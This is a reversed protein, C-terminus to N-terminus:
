GTYGTADVIIHTTALTYICITGTPSLQTTVANAITQGPTYNITSATPIDDTCPYVTAFGPADPQTITLNLIATTANTPINNRGTIQIETPTDAPIIGTGAHQTDITTHDPRTDLLRGPAVTHLTSDDTTYGTADIIIHTTALTYICITGTPSLQTTVANAITQGPTYNITSATPIDDTCPYVTAFGPADPQTITLNLIATTANTPINNRGTIQIETPTDAPIIGTGAHQTDITTHDPRTDLLRGPEVTTVADIREICSIQGTLPQHFGDPCPTAAIAGSEAVFTNMPAAPCEAAGADPQYTGAACPTSAIAGTSAVFRGPPAAECSTQESLPQFTGVACPTAEASGTDVVFTGAPAALCFHQGLDSQFFGAPCLRPASLGTVDAYTGPPALECAIQGALDQYRGLPCETSAVAETTDVYRGPPADICSTQGTDPQYTGTPCPTAETARTTDVYRGAPADLCSTAAFDPQYTGATCDIPDPTGPTDVYTGPPAVKCSTQGPDPQYLRAPCPTPSSEGSAAGYHGAPVDLCSTQGTDPQYTGITCPTAETAGTSDVFHGEPADTCPAAGTASFTGPDCLDAAAAPAAWALVSSMLLTALVGLVRGANTTSTRARRSVAPM